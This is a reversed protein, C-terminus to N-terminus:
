RADTPPFRKSGSAYNFFVLEAGACLLSKSRIYGISLTHKITVHMKIHLAQM